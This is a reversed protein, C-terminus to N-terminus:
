FVLMVFCAVMAAWKYWTVKKAEKIKGEYSVAENVYKDDINSIVESIKEKSM